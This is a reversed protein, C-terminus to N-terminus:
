RDEALSLAQWRRDLEVVATLIAGPELALAELQAIIADAQQQRRLQDNIADIRQRALRAVGRDKDKAADALRKLADLSEVREAATIRIEATEGGLALEVLPEEARIASIALARRETDQTLCAVRCRVEDTCPDGELMEQARAGDATAALAAALATGIAARVASDTETGLADALVAIDGCREAAAIRAEPAPDSKLFLAMDKSDRPLAQQHLSSFLKSVM